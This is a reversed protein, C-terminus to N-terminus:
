VQGAYLRYLRAIIQRDVERAPFPTRDQLPYPDPCAIRAAAEEETFGQKIAARVVEVWGHIIDAQEELYDKQCIEGHGPVIVGADLQKIRGLSELWQAPDGDQLWSKRRHFVIDATFVVGEAPLFVGSGGPTHGPLHFIKIIQGGFYLDLSDNFTIDALRPQYNEILSRGAPDEKEIRAKVQNLDERALKNRVEQHTILTGGLFWSGHWHDPHEETNILYRIEGKAKILDRWKVSDTPRVPVDVLIIGEPTSIVGLNCLPIQTEVAIHPSIQIVEAERFDPFIVQCLNSNVNNYENGLSLQILNIEGVAAQAV